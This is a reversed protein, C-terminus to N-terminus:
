PAAATARSRTNRFDAYRRPLPPILRYEDFSFVPKQAARRRSDM